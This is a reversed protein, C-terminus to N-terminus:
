VYSNNKKKLLVAKSYDPTFVFYEKFITKNLSAELIQWSKSKKFYGCYSNLISRYSKLNEFSTNGKYINSEITNIKRKFSKVTRNKVYCRYPKLCVGLFKFNYNLNFIHTKKKNLKLGLNEKLFVEIKPILSILYKKNAHLLYADDVYRGYHKVKLERKIYQDLPNLYINSFLQSMLDGIILGIGDPSNFLSKEKPLKSWDEKNGIMKIKELPNRHLIRGLLFYIMEYDICDDWIKGSSNKRYRFKELQETLISLLKERNISMFYGSIDISLGYAEKTYNNTISKINHEARKIGFLTGKNKRCSYSDYIFTREFLPSIENFIFHSIVRDRFAPAFVERTM